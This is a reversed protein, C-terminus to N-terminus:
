WTMLVFNCYSMSWFQSVVCCIRSCGTWLIRLPKRTPLAEAEYQLISTVILTLLGMVAYNLWPLYLLTFNFEEQVLCSLMHPLPCTAGNMRLRSLLHLHDNERGPRKVAVSLIWLVGQTAPETPRRVPRFVKCFLYIGRGHSSSFCLVLHFLFSKLSNKRGRGKLTM